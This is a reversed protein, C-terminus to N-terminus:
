ELSFPNNRLLDSIFYFYFLRFYCLLEPFVSHFFVSLVFSHSPLHLYLFVNSSLSNVLVLHHVGSQERPSLTHVAAPAAGLTVFREVVAEGMVKIRSLNNLSRDSKIDSLLKTDM